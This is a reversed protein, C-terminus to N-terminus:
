AIVEPGKLWTSPIGNPFDPVKSFALLVEFERRPRARMEAQLAECLEPLTIPAPDRLKDKVLDHLYQTAFGADLMHAAVNRAFHEVAFKGAAVASAWRSLYDTSIHESFHRIAFHAPGDARPLQQVQQRLFLKEASSFAPHVGVRHQLLHAMQKLSAESLHGQGLATCAEFMEEMALVVGVGWLSRHWPKRETLFELLRIAALKELPNVFTLM